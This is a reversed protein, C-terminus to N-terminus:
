KNNGAAINKKIRPNVKIEKEYLSLRIDKPSNFQNFRNITEPDLIEDDIKMSYSKSGIRSNLSFSIQNMNRLLAVLAVDCVRVKIVDPKAGKPLMGHHRYKTWDDINYESPNDLLEILYESFKPNRAISIMKIDKSWQDINNQGIINPFTFNTNKIFHNYIKDCNNRNRSWENANLELISYLKYSNSNKLVDNLLEDDWYYQLETDVNSMKEQFRKKFNETIKKNPLKNRSKLETIFLINEDANMVNDRLIIGQILDETSVSNKVDEIQMLKNTVYTNVWRHHPNHIINVLRQTLISNSIQESSMWSFSFPINDAHLNFSNEQIAYEFELEFLALIEMAELKRDEILVSAYNTLYKWAEISSKPKIKVTDRLSNNKLDYFEHILDYKNSQGFEGIDIFTGGNKNEKEKNISYSASKIIINKETKNLFILKMWSSEGLNAKRLYSLTIQINEDESLVISERISPSCNCNTSLIILIYFLIKKM